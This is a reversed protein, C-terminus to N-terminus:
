YAACKWACLHACLGFFNPLGCHTIQAMSKLLQLIFCSGTSLACWFKLLPPGMKNSAGRERHHFNRVHTHRRRWKIQPRPPPALKQSNSERQGATAWETLGRPLVARAYLLLPTRTKFEPWLRVLPASLQCQSERNCTVYRVNKVRMHMEKSMGYKRQFFLSFEQRVCV